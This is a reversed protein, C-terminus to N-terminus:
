KGYCARCTIRENAFPQFSYAFVITGVKIEIYEFDYLM